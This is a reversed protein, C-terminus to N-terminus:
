CLDLYKGSCWGTGTGASYRIEYWCTGAGVDKCVGTLNVVEGKRLYGLVNGFPAADRVRLSNATVVAQKQNCITVDVEPTEAKSSEYKPTIFGRIGKGNIPITRYGVADNKNGEIVKIKKSRKDVSVVMGVHDPWGTNDGKGEDDWDYLIGDAPQPVFSDDEVWVGMEKAKKILEGCSIEVPMIDTLGLKKAVASWTCACWSWDYKMKVGRPFPSTSNYIDIIEKFSGDKENKGEWSCFLEVAKKRMNRLDEKIKFDEKDNTAEDFWYDLDVDTKIGSVKGTSSYQQVLCPFDPGNTYDALWVRYSSLVRKEYWNKYYDINTYIGAQYGLKVVQQCFAETFANCEKKTLTVGKQLAKKVTDYEFDYFVIIDEPKLGASKAAKVCFEAENIADSENLAYSFHYIGKVPLGVKKCGEVYEAFKKDLTKRYSSRLIVFEVGSKKVEDFNVVGQHYSIDIGRKM